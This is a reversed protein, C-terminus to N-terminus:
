SAGGLSSQRGTGGHQIRPGVARGPDEAFGQQHEQVTPAQQLLAVDVHEPPRGVLSGLSRPRTPRPM